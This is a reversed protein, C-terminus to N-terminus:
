STTERAMTFFEVRTAAARANSTKRDAAVRARIPGLVRAEIQDRYERDQWLADLVAAARAAQTDRGLRQGYGIRGCPMRIIARAITAEGVNFRPGDGGIRGRLMVLGVEAPRLDVANCAAAFAEFAAGLEQATADAFSALARRRALEDADSPKTAV